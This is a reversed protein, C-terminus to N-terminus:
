NRIEGKLQQEMMKKFRDVNDGQMGAKEAQKLEAEAEEWNKQRFYVTALNFHADPYEPYREFARKFYSAAEYLNGLEETVAGINNLTKPNGPDLMLAKLLIEKAEQFQGQEALLIGQQNYSDIENAIGELLVEGLKGGPSASVVPEASASPMPTVTSYDGAAVPASADARDKDLWHGSRIEYYLALLPRRGQAMINSVVEYNINPYAEGAYKLAQKYETAAMVWQERQLYYRGMLEHLKPREPQVKLAERLLKLAEEQKGASLYYGALIVKAKIGDGNDAAARKLEEELEPKMEEKGNYLNELRLLTLKQYALREIVAINEATDKLYVGVWDDLYVLRWQENRSLHDFPMSNEEKIADYDILAYTAGYEKTVAEWAQPDLSAAYTRGMFDFGYDVNRGDIYVLRQPYGRYILYGGIGYTNFMRGGVQEQELFNYAGKALDFVGYGYLNDRAAFAVTSIQAQILLGAGAAALLGGALVRRREVRKLIWGAKESCALGYFFIATAAVVFFIEHRFAQRSLLGTLLLLGGLFMKKRSAIAAGAAGLLWYLWNAKLYDGWQSPQWERIFVATKDTLLSNIYWFNRLGMPSVLMAAGLLPVLWLILRGEENKLWKFWSKDQRFSGYAREIIFAALPIAALFSAAGHFNIWAIQLGVLAAVSKKTLSKDLARFFIVLVLTFFMFSFLQPRDMFFGRITLAATALLLGKVVWNKKGIALLPLLVALMALTRFVIVGTVGGSRQVLYMVVQALWLHNSSYLQEARTYAFPDTHILSKTQVMVKGATIHWWFDRDLIKFAAAYVIFGATIMIMVAAVAKRQTGDPKPYSRILAGWIKRFGAAMKQKLAPFAELAMGAALLVLLMNRGNMLALLFPDHNLFRVYREPFVFGTAWAAMLALVAAAYDKRRWQKRQWKLMLYVLFLPVVWILFQPSLVPAAALIWFLVAFLAPAFSLKKKWALYYIGACGALTVATAAMGAAVSFDLNHTAFHHYGLLAKDGDIFKLVMDAVSWTSDVGIGRSGQYKLLLLVNQWNLSFGLIFLPIAILIAAGAAFGRLGRRWEKGAYILFLPVLLAPMVKALSAAALLFGSTFYKKQALARWAVFLLAAVVLDTRALFLEPGLLWFTIAIAAAWFWGERPRWYFTIGFGALLATGLVIQWGLEFPLKPVRAIMYFMSSILPPYMGTPEALKYGAQHRGAAMDAAIDRYKQVDMVNKVNPYYKAAGAGVLALLGLSALLLSIRRM